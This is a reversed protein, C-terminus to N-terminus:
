FHRRTALIPIHHLSSWDNAWTHDQIAINHGLSKYLVSFLSQDHRHDKFSPSKDINNYEDTIMLDDEQLCSTYHSFFHESTDDKKIGIITAILQPTTALKEIPINYKKSFFNLTKSNTYEEELLNLAFRLFSHKQILNLYFSFTQLSSSNRNFSCGVDVYFVIDGSKIESLAQKVIQHKWIWYGGGKKQRLVDKHKLTFASDLDAEEYIRITDFQGFQQCERQFSQKRNLFYNSAYSILHLM